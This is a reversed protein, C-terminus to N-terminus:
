ENDLEGITYLSSWKKLKEAKEGKYIEIEEDSIFGDRKLLDVMCLLDGVEKALNFRSDETYGFRIIKSASIVTGIDEKVYVFEGTILQIATHSHEHTYNIPYVALIHRPNVCIPENYKMEDRNTFVAINSGRQWKTHTVIYTDHQELKGKSKEVLSLVKDDDDSM